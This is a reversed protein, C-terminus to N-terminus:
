CNMRVREGDIKVDDNAYVKVDGTTATLEQRKAQLVCTEGAEIRLNGGSHLALEERAVLALRDAALALDGRVEVKLSGGELCLVPGTSTVEICLRVKGDRGILNLESRGPATMVELRHRGALAVKLAPPGAEAPQARRKPSGVRGVRSPEKARREM